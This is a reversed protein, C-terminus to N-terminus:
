FARQCLCLFLNQRFHPLYEEQDQEDNGIKGKKEQDLALEIGPVIAVALIEGVFNVSLRQIRRLYKG